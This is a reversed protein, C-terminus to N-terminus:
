LLVDRPMALRMSRSLLGCLFSDSIWRNASGPDSDQYFWADPPNQGAPCCDYYDQVMFRGSCAMPWCQAPQAHVTRLEFLKKFNSWSIKQDASTDGCSATRPRLVANVDIDAPLTSSGRFISHLTIGSETVLRPETPQTDRLALICVGCTLCIFPFQYSKM